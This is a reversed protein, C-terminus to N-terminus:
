RADIAVQRRPVLKSSRAAQDAQIKAHRLLTRIISAPHNQETLRDLMGRCGEPLQDFMAKRVEELSGIFGWCSDWLEGDKYLEFGYCEGRLYSDYVTM